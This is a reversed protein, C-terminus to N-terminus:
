EDWMYYGDFAGLTAGSAVIDFLCLGQGVPVEFEALNWVLGNGIALPVGLARVHPQTTAFTPNVSWAVDLAGNAAADATDKLIPALATTQTGRVTSRIIAFRPAATPAVAITVGVELVRAKRGAMWLNAIPFNAVNVGPKNSFAAHYIAM